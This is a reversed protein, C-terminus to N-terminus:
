STRFFYANQQFQFVVAIGKLAAIYQMRGCLANQGTYALDFPPGGTSWQSLINVDWDVGNANRTIKLLCQAGQFLVFAQLDNCYVFGGAYSTFAETRILSAGPGVLSGVTLKSATLDVAHANWAGAGGNLPGLRLWTNTNPDVASLGRTTVGQLYGTACANSWARTIPDRAQLSQSTPCYIVETTPHKCIAADFLFQSPPIPNTGRADWTKSNWDFTDVTANNPYTGDSDTAWNMSMGVVVFTPPGHSAIFQPKWYSHRSVPLGNSIGGFDNYAPNPAIFNRPNINALASPLSGIHWVPNDQALDIWRIENGAWSGAGGGGWLILITGFLCGGSSGFIGQSPRGLANGNADTHAGWPALGAEVLVHYDPSGPNVGNDPFAAVISTNPIQQWQGVAATRWAPGSPPPPPPPPPPPAAYAEAEALADQLKSVLTNPDAMKNFCQRASM